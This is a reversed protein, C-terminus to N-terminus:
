AKQVPRGPGFRPRPYVRSQGYQPPTYRSFRIYLILDTAVLLGNLVYLATVADPDYRLKHLTGSVYGVLVVAMFAPSKGAVVRTRLAKAISLPWSVGFCLLMLIEFISM